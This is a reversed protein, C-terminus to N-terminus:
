TRLKGLYDEGPYDGAPLTDDNVLTVLNGFVPADTVRKDLYDIVTLPVSGRASYIRDYGEQGPRSVSTEGSWSFQGGFVVHFWEEPDLGREFYSRGLLQFNRKEMYYAFYSYVLDALEQKTNLEDSIVDINIVLDAAVCYRNRPPNATSTFTDSQGVTLGLALLCEADGGTIEIYNPTSPAMRGGAELGLTGDANAVATYYLAQHNIATVLEALTVATPDEFYLDVFEITSAQTVDRPEEFPLSLTEFGRPWTKLTISWGEVLNFPGTQTGSVKPPYQVTIVQNNGIGMRKERVSASTIAVMPFRDPADSYSMILNVFTELNDSDASTGIEYKEIAPLETMKSPGDTGYKFYQTLEQKISDKALEELQGFRPVDDADYPDTAIPGRDNLNETPTPRTM